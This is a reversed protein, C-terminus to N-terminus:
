APAAHEPAHDEAPAEAVPEGETGVPVPEGEPTPAEGEAAAGNAPAADDRFLNEFASKSESAVEEGMTRAAAKAAERVKGAEEEQIRAEEEAAEAWEESCAIMEEAEEETCGIVDVLQVPDLFTLDTYSLFGEVILT